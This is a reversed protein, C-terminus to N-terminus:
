PRQKLQNQFAGDNQIQEGSGGPWQAVLCYRDGRIVSRRWELPDSGSMALRNISFAGVEESIQLRLRDALNPVIPQIREWGGTIRVGCHHALADYLSGTTLDAELLAGAKNWPLWSRDWGIPDEGAYRLREIFIADNASSGLIHVVEDPPNERRATIVVSREVLGQARVTSALSYLSHLPQELLTRTVTTGRGRQRVVLGDAELHRIAERVTQRSVGYTHSLEEETPFRDEFEGDGTRQRLDDSIQAWLPLPSSRDM